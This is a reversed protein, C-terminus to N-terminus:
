WIRGCMMAAEGVAGWDGKEIALELSARASGISSQSMGFDSVSRASVQVQANADLQATKHTAARARQVISRKEMTQLTEVLEEERGEFQLMMEDINHIEDPVVRRVLTEVRVRIEENRRRGQSEDSM